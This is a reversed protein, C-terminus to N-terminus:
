GRRQRLQQARLLWRELQERPREVGMALAAELKSQLAPNTPDAQVLRRFIEAARERHRQHLYLDGLTETTFSEEFRAGPSQAPASEPEPHLDGVTISSGEAAAAAMAAFRADGGASDLDLELDVEIEHAPEAAELEASAGAPAMSEALLAEVADRARPAELAAAAAARSGSELTAELKGLRDRAIADEPALAVVARYREIAQDIRGAREYLEALTRNAFLNDAAAQIVRELESQAQIAGGNELHARALAVRASLYNPHRQLGEQLVAIAEEYMRAQRYEEALAVFVRSDPQRELMRRYIEIKPSLELDDAM